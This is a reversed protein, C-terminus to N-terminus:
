TQENYIVEENPNIKCHLVRNEEQIDDVKKQLSQVLDRQTEIIEYLDNEDMTFQEKMAKMSIDASIKMGYAKKQSYYDVELDDFKNEALFKMKGTLSTKNVNNGTKNKASIGNEKAINNNVVSLDKILANFSKLKDGNELMVKPDSSYQSILYNYKNIQNNNLSIQIFQSVLFQDEVVDETLYGILDNYLFKQDTDGYGEFPLYGIMNEVDKIIRKDANSLKAVIGKIDCESTPTYDLDVAESSDFSYEWGNQSSMSNFTKIYAGFVKQWEGNKEKTAGDYISNIFPIDLKECMKYVSWKINQSRTYYDIYMKDICNKCIPIKGHEAKRWISAVSAMYFNTTISMEEGHYICRITDTKPKAGRKTASKPKAKAKEAKDAKEALLKELTAM